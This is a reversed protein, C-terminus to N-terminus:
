SSVQRERQDADSAAQRRLVAGVAEGPGLLEEALAISADDDGGSGSWASVGVSTPSSSGNVFTLVSRAEVLTGRSLRKRIAGVAKRSRSGRWVEAVEEPSLVVRGPFRDQIITSTPLALLLDDM